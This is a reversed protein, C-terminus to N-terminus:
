WDLGSFRFYLTPVLTMMSIRGSGCLLNKHRVLSISTKIWPANRRNHFVRAFSDIVGEVELHLFNVKVCRIKSVERAFDNVSMAPVSNGHKSDAAVPFNWEDLLVANRRVTPGQFNRCAVRLYFAFVWHLGCCLLQALFSSQNSLIVRLNQAEDVRWAVRSM